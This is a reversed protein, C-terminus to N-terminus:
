KKEFYYTYPEVERMHAVVLQTENLLIIKMKMTDPEPPNLIYLVSDRIEYKGTSKEGATTTTFTGNGEYTIEATSDSTHKIKDDTIINKQVGAAMKVTKWSGVINEKDLKPAGCSALLVVSFIFLSRM